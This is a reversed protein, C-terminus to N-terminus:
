SWCDFIELPQAVIEQLYCVFPKCTHVGNDCKVKQTSM